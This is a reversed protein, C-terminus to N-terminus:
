SKRCDPQAADSRSMVIQFLHLYRARFAAASMLLYYQRMPVPLLHIIPAVDADVTLGWQKEFRQSMSLLREAIVAAEEDERRHETHLQEIFWRLDKQAATITQEIEGLRQDALAADRLMIRPLTRLQLAVGTLSQLVSDHLDRAVRM